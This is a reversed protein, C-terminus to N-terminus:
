LERNLEATKNVTSYCAAPDEGTEQGRTRLPFFYVPPSITCDLIFVFVTQTLISVFAVVQQCSVRVLHM